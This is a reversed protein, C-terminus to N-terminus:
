TLPSPSPFFRTRCYPFRSLQHADDWSLSDSKSQRARSLYVTFQKWLRSFLARWLPLDSSNQLSSNASAGPCRRPASASPIANSSAPPLSVSPPFPRLLQSGDLLFESRVRLRPRTQRRSRPTHVRACPPANRAVSFHPANRGPISDILQSPSCPLSQFSPQM